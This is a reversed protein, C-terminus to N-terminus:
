LLAAQLVWRALYCEGDLELAHRGVTVSEATRGAIICSLAYMAHAYSSLPDAALALKAQEMGETLRGESFQLYFCAYWARAQINKPNLELARLFEREAESKDWVGMLAAIALACHAESLSPDLAVARRAAEVAKPICAESTAFGYWCLSTYSN